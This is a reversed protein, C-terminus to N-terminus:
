CKWRKCNTGSERRRSECNWKGTNSQGKTFNPILIFHFNQMGWINRFCICTNYRFLAHHSLSLFSFRFVRINAFLTLAVKRSSMVSSKKKLLSFSIFLLASLVQTSLGTYGSNLHISYCFSDSSRLLIAKCKKKM